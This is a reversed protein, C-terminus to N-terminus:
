RGKNSYLKPDRLKKIEHIIYYADSNQLSTLLKSRYCSGLDKSINQKGM